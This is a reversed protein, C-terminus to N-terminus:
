GLRAEAFQDRDPGEGMLRGDGPSHEWTRDGEFRGQAARGAPGAPGLRVGPAAVGARGPVPDEAAGTDATARPRTDPKSTGARTAQCMVVQFNM